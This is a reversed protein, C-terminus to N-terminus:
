GSAKKKFERIAPQMVPVPERQLKKVIFAILFPVVAAVIRKVWVDEGAVLTLGIVLVVVGGILLWEPNQMIWNHYFAFTIAVGFLLCALITWQEVTIAGLSSLLFIIGLKAKYLM